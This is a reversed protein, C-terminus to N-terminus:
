ATRPFKDPRIKATEPPSLAAKQGPPRLIASLAEAATRALSTITLLFSKFILAM